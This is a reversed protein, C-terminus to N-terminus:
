RARPDYKPDGKYAIKLLAIAEEEDVEENVSPIPKSKSAKHSHVSPDKLKGASDYPSKQNDYFTPPQNSHKQSASEQLNSGKPPNALHSRFQKIKDDQSARNSRSQSVSQESEQDEDNSSWSEFRFNYEDRPKCAELIDDVNVDEHMFVDADVDRLKIRKKSTTEIVEEDSEAEEGQLELGCQSLGHSEQTDQFIFDGFKQRM